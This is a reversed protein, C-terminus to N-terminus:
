HRAQLLNEFGIEIRLINGLNAVGVAESVLGMKALETGAAGRVDRVRNGYGLDARAPLKVDVSQTRRKQVIDHFVLTDGLLFQDLLEAILDAIEDVPKGLKVAKVEGCFRLLLGFAKSFHQQGHRAIDADDQDLEGVTQVVHAREIGHARVLAAANSAFREINVRWDRVPQAQVREVTLQLVQAKRRDVGIAVVHEFLGHHRCAAIATFHQPANVLGHTAGQWRGTDFGIHGSAFFRDVANVVLHDLFLGRERIDQIDVAKADDDVGQGLAVQRHPDEM